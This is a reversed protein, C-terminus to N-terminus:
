QKFAEMSNMSGNGPGYTTRRKMKKKTQMESVENKSTM